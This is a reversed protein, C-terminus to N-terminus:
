FFFLSMIWKPYVGLVVVMVGLTGWIFKFPTRLFSLEDMPCVEFQFVTQASQDSKPLQSEHWSRFLAERIWGFYYYISLIVGIVGVALLTYQKAQYAAIFILLKAVFGGLPPIGALSGLGLTLLSTLYPSRKSLSIYHSLKQNEDNEKSVYAMVGFVLFSGLLYVLLYFLVAGQAWGVFFSAVVGILLYGAHSIGSLGMLRKVNPQSLAALNAFLLTVCALISLVISLYDKLGAFPGKVLNFLVIFGAAKSAVALFATVPTPAGQYVDPIWVQFPVAGIKFAIGTLILTAAIYVHIQQPNNAIFLAIEKFSFGDGAAQVFTPNGVIGYLIVIGFLLVASSFAGLVLYKLGAELSFASERCYGVLIYFAITVAELAVFFMLFHRSEVLLMFGATVLLILSYFEGSSLLHQKQKWFYVISLITVLISSLIFFVRMYQTTYDLGVMGSFANIEIFLPQNLWQLLCYFFLFVQGVISLGPILLTNKARRSFLDILILVVGLSLLFMEPAILRWINTDSFKKLFDINM